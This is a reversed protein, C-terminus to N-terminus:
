IDSQQIKNFYNKEKLIVFMGYSVVFFFMEVLSCYM